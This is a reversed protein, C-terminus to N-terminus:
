QLYPAYTMIDERQKRLCERSEKLDLVYPKQFNYAEIRKLYEADHTIIERCATNLTELIDSPTGKPALLVYYTTMALNEVGSERATPIDPAASLRESLLTCLSRLQGDAIYPSALSYPAITVDIRGELLEQLRHAADGGADKLALESGRDIQLILGAIFSSGGMAVGMVIDHPKEHSAKILSSLDTYPSDAPVLLNEGSQRGFVCVVEFADYGYDSLGSAENSALALSNTALLHYGDNPAELCQGMALSGNAGPFNTVSVERNFHKKLGAALLRTNYDTDGGISHSCTLDLAASPYVTGPASDEAPAPSATLGLCLATALSFLVPLRM